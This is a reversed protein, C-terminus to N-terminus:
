FRSFHTMANSDNTQWWRQSSNANATNNDAHTFLRPNGTVAADATICEKLTNLGTILQTKVPEDIARNLTYYEELEAFFDPTQKTLKKFFDALFSKHEATTDSQMYRECLQRQFCATTMRNAHAVIENNEISKLAYQIAITMSIRITGPQSQYMFIFFTSNGNQTAEGDDFKSLGLAQPLCDYFDDHPNGARDDPYEPVISMSKRSFSASTVDTRLKLLLATEHEPLTLEGSNGSMDKIM